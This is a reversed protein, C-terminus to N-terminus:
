SERLEGLELPLCLGEGSQAWSLREASLQVTQLESRERHSCLGEKTAMAVAPEM